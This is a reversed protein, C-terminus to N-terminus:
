ASMPPDTRASPLRASPKSRGRAKAPTRRPSARPWHQGRNCFPWSPVPPWTRCWASSPARCGRLARCGSRGSRPRRTCALLPISRASWALHCTLATSGLRRASSERHHGAPSRPSRRGTDPQGGSRARDNRCLCSKMRGHRNSTPAPTDSLCGNCATRLYDPSPSSRTASRRWTALRHMREGVSGAPPLRRSSRRRTGRASFSLPPLPSFARHGM